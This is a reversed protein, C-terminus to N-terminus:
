PAQEEAEVEIEDPTAILRASLGIHERRLVENILEVAQVAQEDDTGHTVQGADFQLALRHITITRM